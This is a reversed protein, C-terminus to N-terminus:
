VVPALCPGAQRVRAASMGLRVGWARDCHDAVLRRRKEDKATATVPIV